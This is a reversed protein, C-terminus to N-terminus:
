GREDEEPFEFDDPSAAIGEPHVDAESEVEEGVLSDVEDGDLDDLAQIEEPQELNSETM